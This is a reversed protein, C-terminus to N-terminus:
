FLLVVGVILLIPSLIPLLLWLIFLIPASVVLTLEFLFAALLMFTRLILGVVRTVANVVLSEMINEFDLGGKYKERIRYLPSFLTQLLLPVSFFQYGFNLFNKWVRWFEALSQGYHWQLYEYILIGLGM